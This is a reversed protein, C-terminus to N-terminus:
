EPSEEIICMGVDTIICMGVDTIICAVLILLEMVMGGNRRYYINIETM